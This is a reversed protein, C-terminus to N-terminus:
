VYEEGTVAGAERSYPGAFSRSWAVERGGDRSPAVLGPAGIAVLPLATALATIPRRDPSVALILEAMGQAPVDRLQGTVVAVAGYTLLVAAIAAPALLFFSFLTRCSSPPLLHASAAGHLSLRWPLKAASACANM